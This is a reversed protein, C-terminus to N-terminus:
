GALGTGMLKTARAPEAALPKLLYQIGWFMVRSQALNYGTPNEIRFLPQKDEFVYFETLAADPDIQASLLGIESHADVNVFKGAAGPQFVRVRIDDLVMCRLQAVRNTDFELTTALTANVNAGAVIAGFNQIGANSPQWPELRIVEYWHWAAALWVGVNEGPKALPQIPGNRHTTITSLEAM